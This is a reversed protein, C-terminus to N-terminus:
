VEGAEELKQWTKDETLKDRFTDFLFPDNALEVARLAHKLKQGGEIIATILRDSITEMNPITALVGTKKAEALIKNVTEKEEEPLEEEKEMEQKQREIAEKRREIEREEEPTLIKEEIKERNEIESQTETNIKEKEILNPNIEEKQEFKKVNEEPM